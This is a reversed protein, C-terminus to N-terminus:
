LGTYGCDQKLYRRGFRVGAGKAGCRVILVLQLRELLWPADEKFPKEYRINLYMLKRYAKYFSTGTLSFEKIYEFANSKYM